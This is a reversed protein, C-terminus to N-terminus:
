PTGFVLYGMAFITFYLVVLFAIAFSRPLYYNSKLSKHLERILKEQADQQKQLDKLFAQIYVEIFTSDAVVRIHDM